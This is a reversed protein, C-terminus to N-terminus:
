RSEFDEFHIRCDPVGRRRLRRRLDDASRKPGCLAYPYLERRRVPVEPGAVHTLTRGARAWAGVCHDRRCVPHADYRPRLFSALLAVLLLLEDASTISGLARLYIEERRL